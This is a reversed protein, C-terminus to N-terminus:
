QAQAYKTQRTDFVSRVQAGDFDGGCEVVLRSRRLRLHRRVPLPLARRAPKIEVEGVGARLADRGSGSRSRERQAQRHQLESSCLDEAVEVM